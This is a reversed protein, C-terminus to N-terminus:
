LCKLYMEIYGNELERGANGWVLPKQPDTQLQLTINNKENKCSLLNFIIGAVM